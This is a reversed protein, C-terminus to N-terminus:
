FEGVIACPATKTSTLPSKGGIHGSASAKMPGTALTVQSSAVNRDRYDIDNFYIINQWLRCFTGLANDIM